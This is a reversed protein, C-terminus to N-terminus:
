SQAFDEFVSALSVGTEDQFASEVTAGESMSALWRATGLEGFRVILYDTFALSQAYSLAIRAEDGVQSLTGGLESLPILEADALRSQAGRVDRALEEGTAESWQALGENLWGPMAGPVYEALFAHLLEHRLTRSWRGRDRVFDEVPVRVTGDFAGGAWHGLGTLARFEEPAYLTVRLRSGRERVPDHNLFLRFDAYADELVDIAEQAGHLLQTREGDFALEFHMSTYQAFDAEVEQETRWRELVRVLDEREPGLESARTLDALARERDGGARDHEDLARRALAEVLNTRVIQNSPAMEFAPELEALAAEFDGAELHEVARNNAAIAEALVANPDLVPDGIARRESPESFVSADEQESAQPDAPPERLLWYAGAGIALVGLLLPLSRSM